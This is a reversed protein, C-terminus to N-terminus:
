IERRNMKFVEEEKSINRESSFQVPYLDRLKEINLKMINELDWNQSTCYEAIFWLLDGLEEMMRSEDFRRGEYMKQYISNIEGINKTMGHLAHYEEGKFSLVDDDITIAALKQYENGTM